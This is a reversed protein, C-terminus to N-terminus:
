LNNIRKNIEEWDNIHGSHVDISGCDACYFEISSDLETVTNVIHLSKCVACWEVPIDNYKDRKDDSQLFPKLSNTYWFEEAVQQATTFRKEM